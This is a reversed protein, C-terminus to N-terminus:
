AQDLACAQQRHHLLRHHEVILDDVVIVVGSECEVDCLTLPDRAQNAVLFDDEHAIVAWQHDPSIDPLGEVVEVVELLGAPQLQQGHLTALRQIDHGVATGTRHHLCHM